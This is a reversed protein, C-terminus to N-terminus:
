KLALIVEKALQDVFEADYGLELLGWKFANGLKAKKYLNLSHTKGFQRVDSTLRGLVKQQKDQVKARLAVKNGSVSEKQRDLMPYTASFKVALNKGFEQAEKADFWNKLM